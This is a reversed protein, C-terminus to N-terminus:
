LGQHGVTGYISGRFYGYESGMVRTVFSSVLTPYGFQPRSVHLYSSSHNSTYITHFLEAHFSQGSFYHSIIGTLFGESQQVQSVCVCCVCVLPHPLLLVPVRLYLLCKCTEAALPAFLYDRHWPQTLDQM